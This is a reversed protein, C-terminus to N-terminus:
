RQWLGEKKASRLGLNIKPCNQGSFLLDNIGSGCFGEFRHALITLGMGKKCMFGGLSTKGQM